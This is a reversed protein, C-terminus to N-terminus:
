KLIFLANSIIITLTELLIGIYLLTLSVGKNIKYTKFSLFLNFFLVVLGFVMFSIFSRVSGNIYKNLASPDSCNRCQVIYSPSDTNILRLSILIILVIVLAVNLSILILFYHNKFFSKNKSM